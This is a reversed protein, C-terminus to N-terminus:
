FLTRIAPIIAITQGFLFDLLGITIALAVAIVAVVLSGKWTNKWSYWSVKKCESKLGRFFKLTKERREPLVFFIIVCAVIVVVLIILPIIVSPQWFSSGSATSGTTAATTTAATTDSALAPVALVTILLMVLSIIATLRTTLKM